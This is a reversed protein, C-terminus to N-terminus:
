NGKEYINITETQASKITVGNTKYLDSVEYSNSADGFFYTETIEDADPDFEAIFNFINRATINEATFTHVVEGGRISSVEIRTLEKDTPIILTREKSEM